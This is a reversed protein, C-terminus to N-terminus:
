KWAEGAEASERDGAPTGPARESKDRTSKRADRSRAEAREFIRRVQEVNRVKPGFPNLKGKLFMRQGLLLDKFPNRTMLGYAAMLPVENQRGGRRVLGLFIRYFLPVQPQAPKVGSELAIARLTDMVRALDIDRPCRTTCTTCSTCTWIGSAGLVRDRLGLQICRMVQNPTLDTEAAMPCGATCKACQYCAAIKEGSRAAVQELFDPDASVREDGRPFEM